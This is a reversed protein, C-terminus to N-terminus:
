VELTLMLRNRVASDKVFAILRQCVEELVAPDTGVPISESIEIIVPKTLSTSTDVGSVTTDQTFKARTKGTGLDNGSRTPMTRNFTITDRNALSYSSGIYFSRNMSEEHRRYEQNVLVDNNAVDVALTITNDLM